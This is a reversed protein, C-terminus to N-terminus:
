RSFFELQIGTPFEWADIVNYKSHFSGILQDQNFNIENYSRWNDVLLWGADHRDLSRDLQVQDSLRFPLQQEWGRSFDFEDPLPIINNVGEYYFEFSKSSLSTFVFIPQGPKENQEVIEVIMPWDHDKYLDGFREISSLLYLLSLAAVFSFHLWKPLLSNTYSLVAIVMPVFLFAAHRAQIQDRTLMGFVIWLSVAQFVVSFWVYYCEPCRFSANEDALHFAMASIVLVGFTFRVVWKVSVPLPTYRLALLIHDVIFRLLLAGSSKLGIPTTESAISGFQQLVGPLLPIAVVAVVVMSVLYHWINKWNRNVVLYAGNALLPLVFYYHTYLGLVAVIVYNMRGSVVHDSLLYGRRFFGFLLISLLVTFAYARAEVAFYIFYPNIAVCLFKLDAPLMTSGDLWFFVLALSALSAVISFARAWFLSVNIHRWVTLLAFYLPPQYEVVGSDRIAAGIGHASTNLTFLEDTWISTNASLFLVIALFVTVYVSFRVIGTVPIPQSM